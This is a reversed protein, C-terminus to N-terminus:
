RRPKVRHNNQKEADKTHQLALSSTTSFLHLPFLSKFLPYPSFVHVCFSYDLPSGFNTSIPSHFLLGFSSVFLFFILQSINKCIVIHISNFIHAPHHICSDSEVYACVWVCECASRFLFFLIFCLVEFQHINEATIRAAEVEKRRRRFKMQHDSKANVNQLSICDSGWKWMTQMFNIHKTHNQCPFHWQVFLYYCEIQFDTGCHNWFSNFCSLHLLDPSYSYSYGLCLQMAWWKGISPMKKKLELILFIEILWVQRSACLCNELVIRNCFTYIQFSSFGSCVTLQVTKRNCKWTCARTEQKRNMEEGKEYEIAIEMPTGTWGTRWNTRFSDCFLSGYMRSTSKNLHSHAGSLLGGKGWWTEDYLM